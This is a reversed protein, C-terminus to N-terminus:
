SQRDIGLQFLQNHQLCSCNEGGVEDAVCPVLIQGDPFCRARSKILEEVFDDLKEVTVSPMVVAHAIKGQCALQWKRVFEEEQPREFVVTSSLENLLASFGASRLRDKLYHANRLCRQVEKQFGRYGKRNLTYWLFIPAHGNRSGMITADRSALYEVNRSLANIHEKRTIQVGCPMPCGVFKHGSVSVSGIPKKFTVKPAKKVFPIMLGFLAGDCHIYFRDRSFGADELTRIILDLDDVAGKVTTGINVNIIAPNDKHQVLRNKFDTCDIEGSTLTDVKIVEMRYMRAAKFVSYHSEKSAYLIGDPFVERGVLIGHLNGETGCNTIYGWYEDKELDWLRAFWDLVGVEFQRSHVGYNSEIFPDGLNNISFHQLQALAGYDFDLNYPYGLHFKTKEILTKRYRSLVAAMFADKEGTVEDDVEPETISLCTDHINRGLIMKGKDDEAACEEVLQGNEDDQYVELIQAVENAIINLPIEDPLPEAPTDATKMTQIVHAFDPAPSAALSPQELGGAM